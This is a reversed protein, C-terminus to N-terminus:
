RILTRRLTFLVHFKLLSGVISKDYKNLLNLGIGCGSTACWCAFSLQQPWYCMNPSRLWKYAETSTNHKTQLEVFVNRPKSTFNQTPTVYIDISTPDCLPPKDDFQTSIVPYVTKSLSLVKPFSTKRNMDGLFDNINEPKYSHGNWSPFQYLSKVLKGDNNFPNYEDGNFLFRVEGNESTFRYRDYNPYLREFETFKMKYTKEKLV